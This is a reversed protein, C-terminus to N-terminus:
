APTQRNDIATDVIPVNVRLGIRFPHELHLFTDMGGIVLRFHDAGAAIAELGAGGFLLDSHFDAGLAMRVVGAGLPQHDFGAAPYIFESFFVTQLLWSGPKQRTRNKKASAPREPRSTKPLPTM